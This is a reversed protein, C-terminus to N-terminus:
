EKVGSPDPGIVSLIGKNDITSMAEELAASDTPFADEWVTSNGFEDVIELLWYGTGDEYINIDVTSGDRTLRQGLPSYVIGEEIHDLLRNFTPQYFDDDELPSVNKAASVIAYCCRKYKKGSGCPCQTNRGIKISGDRMSQATDRELDTARYPLWYQYIATLSTPIQQGLAERQMAFRTLAEEEDTVEDAGLLHLPRWADSMSVDNFLPQWENSTLKMGRIFGMAWTEYDLYEREGPRHPYTDLMPDFDESAFTFIWAIGSRHRMILELVRQEQDRSTFVPSRDETAGWIGALWRGTSVAAPGIVIATLYGDLGSLTLAEDSLEESLLFDELEGLEETSLPAMRQMLRALSLPM